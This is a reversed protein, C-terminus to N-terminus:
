FRAHLVAQGFPLLALLVAIPALLAMYGVHVQAVGGVIAGFTFAALTAGITQARRALAASGGSTDIGLGAMWRVTESVVYTINGTMVTTPPLNNLVIRMMTNQTAMAFLAVSGLIVAALDDPGRPSPLYLGALLCAGLAGAQLLIVPIFPHRGYERLLAIFWGSLAVSVAFIPLALLKMVLQYEGVAINVALFLLNGTVHATLLGYWAMFGFIDIFGAVFGLGIPFAIHEFLPEPQQAAAM